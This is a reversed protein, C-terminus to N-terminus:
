GRYSMSRKDRGAISSVSGYTGLVTIFSGGLILVVANWFVLFKFIITRRKPEHRQRWYDYRPFAILSRRQFVLIAFGVVYLWMFGM